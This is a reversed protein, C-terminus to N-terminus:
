QRAFQVARPATAQFNEKTGDTAERLAALVDHLTEAVEHELRRPAFVHPIVASVHRQTISPEPDPKGRLADDGTVLVSLYTDLGALALKTATLGARASTTGGVVM